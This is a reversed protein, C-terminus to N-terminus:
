GSFGKFSNRISQYLLLIEIIEYVFSSKEMWDGGGRKKLRVMLDIEVNHICM